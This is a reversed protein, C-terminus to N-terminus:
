VVPFNGADVSRFFGWEDRLPIALVPCTSTRLVKETVSGLLMRPIGARGHTSMVILDVGKAKAWNVLMTHPEGMEVVQEMDLDAKLDSINKDLFQQLTQKHQELLRVLLNDTELRGSAVGM